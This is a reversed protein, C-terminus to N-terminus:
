FLKFYFRIIYLLLIYLISLLKFTNSNSFDIYKSLKSQKSNMNNNNCKDNIICKSLNFSLKKIINKNYINEEIQFKNLKKIIKTKEINIMKLVLITFKNLLNFTRLEQYMMTHVIQNITDLNHISNANRKLSCKNNITIKNFSLNNDFDTNLDTDTDTDPDTDIESDTEVKYYKLNSSIGTLDTM